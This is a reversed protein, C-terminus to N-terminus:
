SRALVIVNLLLSELGQKELLLLLNVLLLLNEPENLAQLVWVHNECSEHWHRGSM